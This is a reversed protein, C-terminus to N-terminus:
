ELGWAMFIFYWIMLPAYFLSNIFQSAVIFSIFLLFLMINNRKFGKLVKLWFILYILFGIIGTTSLILLFSSDSGAGSHGGNASFARILNSKELALRYNNFGVGILPNKTIIELSDQWSILRESASKDILVGGEVRILLRPFLFLSGVLIIGALTLVLIKKQLNIRIFIPLGLGLLFIGVMLYATRSYTLILAILTLISLGFNILNRNNLLYFLNAALIFVLFVGAFNPDLFTSALRNQHPDFGFVTLFEFNPFFILQFLGLISFVVGIIRLLKYLSALTIKKESILNFTVLSISSYIILKFLYASDLLINLLTFLRLSFILSLFSIIWFLMMWKFNQPILIKTKTIVKWIIFFIIILTTLIDLISIAMPSGFPYKGLEGFLVSILAGILLFKVLNM